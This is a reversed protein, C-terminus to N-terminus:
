IFNEITSNTINVNSMGTEHMVTARMGVNFKSQDLNEYFFLIHVATLRTNKPNPAIRQFM